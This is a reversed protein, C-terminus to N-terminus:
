LKFQQQLRQMASLYPRLGSQTSTMIVLVQFGEIEAFDIHLQKMPQNVWPWSHLPTVPPLSCQATCEKCTKVIEEINCDIKPWWMYSRALLKMKVVGPHTFQLELLLCFQLVKSIIVRTGWLLCGQDTTLQDKRHYFPKLNDEVGRQPWGEMVYKYILSLVSNKSTEEAIDSATIPLEDIFSVKFMAIAAADQDEEGAIPLRSLSDANAHRKTGKYEISNTYASLFIAWHQM